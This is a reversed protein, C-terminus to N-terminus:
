GYVSKRTKWRRHLWMWDSPRERILAEARRAYREMIEGQPPREDKTVIPEVSLRYRGRAVRRTLVVYVSLKAARAIMEAGMYFATEQGLFTTYHRLEASVPDQDAVLAIGRVESRRRIVDNLLDKAPVLEAGFRSRLTMLLKEAWADHLPKYAAALPAGLAASLALLMWEWNAYHVGILLVSQGARLEAQVPELGDIAVRARVGEADLRSGKVIEFVIDFTNRYFVQIERRLAAPSLGPFCRHLQERVRARRYFGLWAAVLALADSLTYGVRWPVRSSLRLWPPLRAGTV